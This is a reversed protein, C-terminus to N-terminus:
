KPPYVAIFLDSKDVGAKMLINIDSPNGDITIVDAISRLSYLRENDSDIVTIENSENSLLKALHSGVAGAGAIVIKM